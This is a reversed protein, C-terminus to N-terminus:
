SRENHLRYNSVVYGTNVADIFAKLASIEIDSDRGEGEFEQENYVIRIKSISEAEIGERDSESRHSLISSPFYPDVLKKLAALASDRGQYEEKIEGVRDFVKGQLTLEVKSASRSYDFSDISVPARYKFYGRMLEQDTIGKRRESFTVKIYQAIDAKESDECVFGYENIISKAHNGGSLPGFVISIDKGTKRPDFPQYALPNQLVANTHGGSSHKAANEGTVPWHPQRPLMHKSVFDSVQTLMSIDIDTYFYSHLSELSGFEKIIMIVSELAANGAREGIGNICGEIQRAPGDYVSAISNHVALGFDNHCHASWIVPAHPFAERVMSAHRNMKNVFYEEGQYMIGGGITDPCNIIGAGSEVAALILDTVFDFNEGQRSYGEPSFEVEFGSSTARKIFRSVNEVIVKKNAKDGLSAEMLDPSVPVYTHLLARRKRLAPELAEMTSDIQEDRLQCLGAVYLGADSRTIEDSIVKVIEFDSASASPFGAELVDVGLASALHAYELNQEFNLGAGPCQQGDRLTTDFIRIKEKKKGSDEM